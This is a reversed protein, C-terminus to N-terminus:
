AFHKRLEEYEVAREALEGKSMAEGTGLDLNASDLYRIPAGWKGGGRKRAADWPGNRAHSLDSIQAASVDRFIETVEALIRQERRTMHALSPKLLPRILKSSPAVTEDHGVLRTRVDISRALDAAPHNLENYLETPVPGYSLAHYTLGTVSRGTERFLLMDLYYLLKFLKIAGVHKVNTAFYVIAELLKYRQFSATM